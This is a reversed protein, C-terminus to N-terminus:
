VYRQNCCATYLISDPHVGNGCPIRRPSLSVYLEKFEDAWAANNEDFAMSLGGWGVYKSLTEQEEPPLDTKWAGVRALPNIAAMNNRFKRKAGGVGM